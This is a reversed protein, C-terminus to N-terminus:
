SPRSFSTIPCPRVKKYWELAQTPLNYSKAHDLLVEELKPFVSEFEKLTTKQAMKATRQNRKEQLLAPLVFQTSRSSIVSLRATFHEEEPIV